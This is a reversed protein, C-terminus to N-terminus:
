DKAVLADTTDKSLLKMEVIRAADAKTQAM